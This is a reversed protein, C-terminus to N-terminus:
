TQELVLASIAFIVVKFGDENRRFNAESIITWFSFDVYQVYRWLSVYINAEFNSLLANKLRDREVNRINALKIDPWLCNCLFKHCFSFAQQTAKVFVSTVFDFKKAGASLVKQHFFKDNWTQSKEQVLKQLLPIVGIGLFAQEMQLFYSEEILSRYKDIGNQTHFWLFLPSQINTFSFPFPNDVFSVILIAIVFTDAQVTSKTSSRLVLKVLIDKHAM